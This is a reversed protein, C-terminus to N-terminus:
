QLVYPKILPLKIEFEKDSETIDIQKNTLIKYKVSLNILGLRKRKLLLTKSQVNHNVILNNKLDTFFFMSLPTSQSVKNLSVANEVFTKITMPPVLWDRLEEAINMKFHIGEGFRTKIIDFYANAFRIEEGLTITEKEHNQLFYRYVHSLEDVFRVAKKKDEDVLLSLSNLSQFLFHPSVQTKLSDVQAQLKDRKLWLNELWAQRWKKFLYIIEYIITISMAASTSIAITKWYDKYVLDREFYRTEDAMFSFVISVLATNLITFFLTIIFRAHVQEIRPFQNRIVQIYLRGTEWLVIAHLLGFIYSKIILNFSHLTIASFLTTAIFSAVPIGVLRFWKDNLKEM